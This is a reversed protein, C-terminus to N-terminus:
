NQFICFLNVIMKLIMLLLNVIHILARELQDLVKLCFVFFHM